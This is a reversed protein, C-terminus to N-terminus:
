WTFGNRYKGFVQIVFPAKLQEIISNYELERALWLNYEAMPTNEEPEREMTERLVKRIYISWGEVIEEQQLTTLEPVATKSIDVKIKFKDEDVTISEQGPANYQTPMAFDYHIHEMTWDMVGIFQDVNLNLNTKIPGQKVPANRLKEKRAEIKADAIELLNNWKESPTEKVTDESVLTAESAKLNSESSPTESLSQGSCLELNSEEGMARHGANRAQIAKMRFDSPKTYDILAISARSGARSVDEDVEPKEPKSREVNPERFQHQVAPKYIQELLTKANGVVAGRLCGMVTYYPMESCCEEYNSFYRLETHRSATLNALAKQISAIESKIKTIADITESVTEHKTTTQDIDVPHDDRSEMKLSNFKEQMDESYRIKRLM